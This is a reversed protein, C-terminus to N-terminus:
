LLDMGHLSSDVTFRDHELDRGEVEDGDLDFCYSSLSGCAAERKRFPLILLLPYMGSFHFFYMVLRYFSWHCNFWALFSHEWIVFGTYLGIVKGCKVDILPRM